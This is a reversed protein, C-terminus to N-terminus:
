PLQRPRAAPTVDSSGSTAGPAGNAPWASTCTSSTPPRRRGRARRRHPHAGDIGAPERDGRCEGRGARRRAPDLGAPALRAVFHPAPPRLPDPARAVAESVAGAGLRDARRAARSSRRSGDRASRSPSWICRAASRRSRSTNVRRRGAGDGADLSSRVIASSRPPSSPTRGRAQPIRRASRHASASSTMADRGDCSAADDGRLRFRRGENTWRDADADGTILRLAPKDEFAWRTGCRWCGDEQRAMPGRCRHCLRPVHRNRM